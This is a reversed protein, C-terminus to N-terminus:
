KGDNDTIIVFTENGQVIVDADVTSLMLTFHQDGELAGDDEIIIDVCETAMDTSGYVFTKNFYGSTYDFIATALYLM